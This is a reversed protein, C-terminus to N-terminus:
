HKAEPWDWIGDEPLFGIQEKSHRIERFRMRNNSVGYFIDFRLDQPADVCKEVIQIADRHSLYVAAHRADRPRDEDVVRGLRICLVSMDHVKAYYRGLNEGWLKTCGYVTTPYPTSLHTIEPRLTPVDSYRAEVMAAYPEETEYGMVAAGSSGFVIRKVGARCSAEFLNYTGVVNASLLRRVEKEEVCAAMHVVTHIGKVASCLADFDELDAEFCPVEDIHRRNLAYVQYRKALSRGVIGGILGSMGTVLIKQTM